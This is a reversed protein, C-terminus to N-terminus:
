GKLQRALKLNNDQNHFSHISILWQQAVQVSLGNSYALFFFLFRRKHDQLM